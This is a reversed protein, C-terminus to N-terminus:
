PQTEVLGTTVIEGEELGATIEAFFLDKLGVEVMRLTPEGEELVFVAYKGPSIERLAEVPVLLVNEARGGIVDVAAAAGVPLRLGSQNVDLEILGHVLPTNQEYVLAPDVQVVVGTYVKEEVADFTVEAPYGPAIKDWDIEDLYVEVYPHALDAVVALPATSVTQGVTLDLSLLTGDAPAVLQLDELAQRASALDDQAQQLRTLKEGSAEPPLEVGNLADLYWQAEQLRAKALNYDAWAQQIDFVSPPYIVPEDRGTEENYEYVISVEGTKPNTVTEAFNDLLYTEQYYAEAARLAAEAARVEYEAADLEAQQEETPEDGYEEQLAELRAQAAELRETTNLVGPSILWALRNRMTNLNEQAAALDAEAQALAAPSTLERLTREAQALRAQAAADDLRALVQGATVQDGAAAYIEVVQGAAGFGFSVEYAPTLTGTGNAYLVIDGRRVRATKLTEEDAAQESQQQQQWRGYGYYAGALVVAALLVWKWKRLFTKM